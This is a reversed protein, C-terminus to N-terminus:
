PKVKDTVLPHARLKEITLSERPQTVLWLTELFRVDDELQARAADAQIARVLVESLLSEERLWEEATKMPM